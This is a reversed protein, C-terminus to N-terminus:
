PVSVGLVFSLAANQPKQPPVGLPRASQMISSLM